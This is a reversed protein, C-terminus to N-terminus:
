KKKFLFDDFYAHGEGMVMFRLDVSPDWEGTEFRLSINQWQGSASTGTRQVV